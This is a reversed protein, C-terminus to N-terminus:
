ACTHTGTDFPSRRLAGLTTGRRRRFLAGLTSGHQFGVRAAITDASLAPDTRLLHTAEDLRIENIFALPSLGLSAQTIRQLTRESVGVARAAEAVRPAGALHTRVWEEFAVLVPNNRALMTPAAFSAQSARTGILLYRAVADALAPSRKQVVSLAMDIHAFAAGATTIGDSTVLTSSIDLHVAPYLRRFVPGLWWSTTARLGDLVGAEALIFTGTCAAALAIGSAHAETVRDVAWRQSPRALTDRIEGPEKFATVILLDPALSDLPVTTIRHGAATRVIRRRGVVSVQWPGVSSNLESRLANATSLVDCVTSVGTDFTNETVLVAVQMASITDFIDL